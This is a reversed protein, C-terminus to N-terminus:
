FGSHQKLHPPVHAATYSSFVVASDSETGLGYLFHMDTYEANRFTDPPSVLGVVTDSAQVAWVCSCSAAVAGSAPTVLMTSIGIYLRM